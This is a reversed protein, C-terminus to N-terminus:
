HGASRDLAVSQPVPLAPSALSFLQHTCRSFPVSDEGPHPGGTAEMEAMVVPDQLVPGAELILVVTEKKNGIPVGQGSMIFVRFDHRGIDPIHHNVPQSCTDIRISRGKKDLRTNWVM